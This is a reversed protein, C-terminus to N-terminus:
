CGTATSNKTVVVNTACSSATEFFGDNNSDTVTYVDYSAPPLNTITGKAAAYPLAKGDFSSGAKVVAYLTTTGSGRFNGVNHPQYARATIAFNGGLKGSKDYVNELWNAPGIFSIYGGSDNTQVHKMLLGNVMVRVELVYPLDNDPIDISVNKNELPFLRPVGESSDNPHLYYAQGAHAGYIRENDFVTKNTKTSNGNADYTFSPSSSFKRVFLAIHNYHGSGVDNTPLSIGRGTLFDELKQKGNNEACSQLTRGDSAITSDCLAIRGRFFSSWYKSPDRGPGSGKAMRLEGLDIYLKFSNSDSNNSAANSLGSYKYNKLTAQRTEVGNSTYTGKLVLEMRSNALDSLVPHNSCTFLSFTFSVIVLFKIKQM